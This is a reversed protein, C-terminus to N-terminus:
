NGGLLVKRRRPSLDAAGAVTFEAYISFRASGTSIESWPDTLTSGSNRSNAGGGGDNMFGMDGSTSNGAVGYEVGNAMAQSVVVSRFIAPAAATISVNAAAALRNQPVDAGDIDYLAVQANEPAANSFCAIWLKTAVDGTTAVHTLAAAVNCMGRNSVLSVGVVQYGFTPDITVPYVANAMWTSDAGIKMRGLVTDIEIFGWVTDGTADWVKPRFIHFAKGAQYFTASITDVRILVRQESWISDVEIVNNVGDLRYVAYSGVVSDPRIFGDDIEKQTLESQYLFELGQSQIEFPFFYRGSLPRSRIIADFEFAGEPTIYMRYRYKNNGYKVYPRGNLTGTQYHSMADNKNRLRVKIWCEDGWAFMTFGTSDIDTTLRRRKIKQRDENDYKLDYHKYQHIRTGDQALAPISLCLILLIALYRM